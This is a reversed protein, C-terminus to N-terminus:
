WIGMACKQVHPWKGIGLIDCDEGVIEMSITHQNFCGRPMTNWNEAFYVYTSEITNLM